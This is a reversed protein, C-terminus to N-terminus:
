GNVMEQYKLSEDVYFQHQPHRQDWYPSSPARLEELKAQADAPSFANSTKVGELSDEGIKSTIFEGINVMMKIMEPHDGLLRGDALEIESVASMMEGDINDVNGFELMIANANNMRDDFAQGYERRLETETEAILQDAQGTNGDFRSGLEGNYKDLLKQAQTPTLGIEHATQRYWDLMQEDAEVGDALNNELQYGEPNEPRGLRKYVENWDDDTAHKGPIAVKDAGIMSQANVYSKALAGVDAITELSKHGRIEEPIDNRWDTTESPAVEAPASVEAVQEDSM